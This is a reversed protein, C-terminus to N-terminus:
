SARKKRSRMESTRSAPMRADSDLIELFTKVIKPDFQTGAGRELEQQAEERTRAAHYPRDALMTSYVDAVALIRALLPIDEGTLHQPYGKGDYREHHHLVIDVLPQLRPVNHILDAGITAHTEIVEREAPLLAGPKLLIGDSIAIKGVDHLLGSKFVYEQEADSLELKRAIALAFLAVEECHGRTYADKAEIADCILSLMGTYAEEIERRLHRNELAITAHNGVGLLLNTDEETFPGFQKDAIVVMGQLQEKIIIPYAALNRISKTLPDDALEAMAKHDNLVVVEPKARIREVMGLLLKSHSRAQDFQYRARIELDSDAELYVGREAGVIQVSAFLIREYINEPHLQQVLELRHLLQLQEHFHAAREADQRKQQRLTQIEDHAAKLERELELRRGQAADLRAELTDARVRQAVAEAEWQTSAEVIAAVDQQVQDLNSLVEVGQQELEAPEKDNTMM